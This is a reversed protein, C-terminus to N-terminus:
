QRPESLTQRAALTLSYTKDARQRERKIQSIVHGYFLAVTYFFAIRLLHSSTWISTDSSFYVNAASVLTSGLVVMVLSEGIASLFLVFFYLLFLEQGGTGTSHLAWSVWLTDAILVPAEVYWSFVLDQSVFSLGVNSALAVAIMVACSPDLSPNPGQIILLYAAAVIFLYRLLLFLGKRGGGLHRFNSEEDM